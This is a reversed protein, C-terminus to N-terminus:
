LTNTFHSSDVGDQSDSPYLLSTTHTSQLLLLLLLYNECRDGRKKFQKILTLEIFKM